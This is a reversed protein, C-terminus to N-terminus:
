VRNLWSASMREDELDLERLVRRMVAEDLEGADRRAVLVRRQAALIERRLRHGRKGRVPAAPAGALAPDDDGRTPDLMAAAAQARVNGARVLAETVAKAQSEGLERSWAATKSEIVRQAAAATALRLAAEQAADREADDHEEVSLRRIVWPLSLGQLLLTGIAVAYAVLQLTARAPFPAGNVTAPIAAAAALTVVGRMGAWSVVAHESTALADHPTRHSGRLRVLDVRATAFVYLPRVLIVTALVALSLAVAIGLGQDSAIVDGLVWKLQVGILAFTFAELPLDVTSWVPTEYLRTAYGAQPATHGLYLGAAVVALVGSGGLTEAAWYAAFPTLLGITSAVVPDDLHLRLRHVVWGIVLGLGTGVLVAVMFVRVGTSPVAAGTAVGAIAVKYLTLSTADNILSEGTLLTMVRRPLGLRRGVAVAAVADPPAVVAGLVLAATIPLEPVIAWAVVAVAAATVLVLGVGLRLISNRSRRFDQYSSSLAASYLLPPLVFELIIKSDVEFRPMGPVFSVALGTAVLILPPSWGWRRCLATIGVAGVVLAFLEVHSM